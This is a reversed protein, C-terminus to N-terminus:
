EVRKNVKMVLSIIILTNNYNFYPGLRDNIYLCASFSVSPM